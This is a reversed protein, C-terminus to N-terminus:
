RAGSSRATAPSVVSPGASSHGITATSLTGDGEEDGENKDPHSKLFQLAEKSDAVVKKEVSCLPALSVSGGLLLSNAKQTTNVAQVAENKCYLSKHLNRLHCILTYVLSPLTYLGLRETQLKNDCSQLFIWPQSVSQFAQTRPSHM